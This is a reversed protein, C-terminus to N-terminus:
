EFYDKFMTHLNELNMLFKRLVFSPWNELGKTSFEIEMDFETLNHMAGEIAKILQEKSAYM